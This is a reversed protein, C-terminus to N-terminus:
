VKLVAHMLDIGLQAFEGTTALGYIVAAMLVIGGATLALAWGSRLAHLCARIAVVLIVIVFIGGLINEIGSVNLPDPAAAAALLAHPLQPHSTAAALAATALPVSNEETPHQRPASGRAM